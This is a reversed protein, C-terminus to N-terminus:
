KCVHALKSNQLSCPKATVTYQMAKVCYVTISQKSLIVKTLLLYESLNGENVDWSGQTEQFHICFLQM